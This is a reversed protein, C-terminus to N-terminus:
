KTQSFRELSDTVRSTFDGTPWRIRCSSTSRASTPATSVSRVDEDGLVAPVEGSGDFMPLFQDEGGLTMRFWATMYATGQDYQEDSTMRISTAAVSPDTGCTPETRRAASGSWDDSVSYAYKGPTWVTNYFNHNAGIVLTTHKAAEDGPVNYRADDFYDIGQLDSVDGDHYPLLVNIPTDNIVPRFFDVPALPFVADVDVHPAAAAALELAAETTLTDMAFQLQM